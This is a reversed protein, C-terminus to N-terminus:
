SNAKVLRAAQLKLAFGYIHYDLLNMGILHKADAESVPEVTGRSQNENPIRLDPENPFLNRLLSASAQPTEAIYFWPMMQIRRRVIWKAWRSTQCKVWGSQYLQRFHFDGIYLKVDPNDSRIFDHFTLVQALRVVEADAIHLGGVASLSVNFKWYRYMSIIRQIPDRFNTVLSHGDRVNSYTEYGCHGFYVDFGKPAEAPDASQRYLNPGDDMIPAIKANGVLNTLLARLSSGGAKPNHLFFLKTSSM